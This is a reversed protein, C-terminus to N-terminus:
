FQKKPYYGYVGRLSGSLQYHGECIKLKSLTGKLSGFIISTEGVVFIGKIFYFFYYNLFYFIFSFFLILFSISLFLPHGFKFILFTKM